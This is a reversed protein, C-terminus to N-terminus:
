RLEAIWERQPLPLLTDMMLWCREKFPRSLGIRTFPSPANLLKEPLQTRLFRNLRQLRNAGGMEREALEIFNNWEHDVVPLDRLTEGSPLILTARTEKTLRELRLNVFECGCISRNGKGPEVSLRGSYHSALVECGFFDKLRDALEARRLCDGLEAESVAGAAGLVGTSFRDETHPPEPFATSLQFSLRNGRGHAFPAPWAFGQPPFPRLSCFGQGARELGIICHGQAMRTIESLILETM